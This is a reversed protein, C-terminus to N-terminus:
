LTSGGELSTWRKRCWGSETKRRVRALRMCTLDPGGHLPGFSVERRLRPGAELKTSDAAGKQCAIIFHALEPGVVHCVTGHVDINLKRLNDVAKQVNEAKRSCIM